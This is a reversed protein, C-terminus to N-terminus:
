QHYEKFYETYDKFLQKDVRYTGDDIKYIANIVFLEQLVKNLTKPFLGTMERLDEWTRAGDVTIAKIVRGKWSGLFLPQDETM